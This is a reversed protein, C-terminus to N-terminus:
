ADDTADLMEDLREPHKVIEPIATRRRRYVSVILGTVIGAVAAGALVWKLAHGM